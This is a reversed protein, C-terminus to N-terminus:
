YNSTKPGILKADNFGLSKVDELALSATQEGDLPGVILKHATFSGNDYRIAEVNGIHGLKEKSREANEAISFTAAQIYYDAKAVPVPITENVDTKAYSRSFRSPKADAAYTAPTLKDGRALRLPTMERPMRGGNMRSLLEETQGKLYQVRVRALGKRKFDLLDAGKSSLDIIRGDAFPGRDNVLAVIAKNNDLNTVRVLSPMPLTKHAATVANMDYVDGNATKGGNFESGYWSALGVRDYRPEDAPYYTVGYVQYPKGVKYVGYQDDKSYHLGGKNTSCSIIIFCLILLPFSRRRTM